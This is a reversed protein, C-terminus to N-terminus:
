GRIPPAFSALGSVPTQPLSNPPTVALGGFLCIGVIAPAAVIMRGDDLPM